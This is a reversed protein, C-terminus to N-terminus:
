VCCRNLHVHTFFAPIFIKENQNESDINPEFLSIDQELNETEVIKLYIHQLSILSIKEMWRIFFYSGLFLSNNLSSIKSVASFALGIGSEPLGSNKSDTKDANM